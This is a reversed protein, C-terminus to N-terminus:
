RTDKADIGKGEKRKGSGRSSPQLEDREQVAVTTAPTESFLRM